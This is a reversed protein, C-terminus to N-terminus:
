ERLDEVTFRIGRVHRSHIKEVKAEDGSIGVMKVFLFKALRLAVDRTAPVWKGCMRIEIKDEM